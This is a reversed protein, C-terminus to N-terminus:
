CNKKNAVNKVTLYQGKIKRYRNIKRKYNKKANSDFLGLPESKPLYKKEQNYLNKLNNKATLIQQCNKGNYLAEPAQIPTLNQALSNCTILALLLLAYRM